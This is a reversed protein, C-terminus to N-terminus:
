SAGAAQVLAKIQERRASNLMLSLKSLVSLQNNITKFNMFELPSNVNSGEKYGQYIRTEKTNGAEIEKPTGAEPTAKYFTGDFKLKHSAPFDVIKLDCVKVRTGDEPKIGFVEGKTSISYSSYKNLKEKPFIYNEGCKLYGDKDMSVTMSRTFIPKGQPDELVFFGLGDITVDDKNASRMLTGSKMDRIVEDFTTRDSRKYGLTTANAINQTNLELDTFTKETNKELRNLLVSYEVM